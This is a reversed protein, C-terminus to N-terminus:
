CGRGGVELIATFYGTGDEMVSFHHFYHSIIIRYLSPYERSM